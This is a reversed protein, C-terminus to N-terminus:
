DMSRQVVKGCCKGQLLLIGLIIYGGTVRKDGINRGLGQGSPAMFPERSSEMARWGGTRKEARAHTGEHPAM